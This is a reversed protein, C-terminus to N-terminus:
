KNSEKRSLTAVEKFTCSNSADIPSNTVRFSCDNRIFTPIDVLSSFNQYRQFFSSLNPLLSSNNNIPLEKNPQACYDCESSKLATEENTDLDRMFAGFVIINLFFGSFILLTGRWSFTKLFYTTLPPFISTGVGTGCVALGTSFSRKKEFYYAVIVVSTVFCFSLGFGSISFAFFLHELKTAFYGLIFGAAALLGSAITMRRCGYRDTLASALPGTLLPMSIFLSGVWATKSKSQRFYDSLVIFVLGFSATIGDAIVNIMFSTFVIIWGWGGDPPTALNRSSRSKARSKHSNVESDNSAISKLSKGENLSICNCSKTLHKHKALDLDNVTQNSVIKFLDFCFFSLFQIKYKFFLM